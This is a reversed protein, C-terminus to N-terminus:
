GKSSRSNENCIQFGDIARFLKEGFRDPFGGKKFLIKFRSVKDDTSLGGLLEALHEVWDIAAIVRRYAVSCLEDNKAM